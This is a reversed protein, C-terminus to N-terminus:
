NIYKFFLNAYMVFVGLMMAYWVCSLIKGVVGHNYMAEPIEFLVINIYQM